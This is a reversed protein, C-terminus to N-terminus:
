GMFVKPNVGFKKRFATAFRSQSSYGVTKAVQGVSLERQELLQRRMWGNNIFIVLSLQASYNVFVETSLANM